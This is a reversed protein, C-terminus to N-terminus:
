NIRVTIECVAGFGRYGAQEEIGLPRWATLLADVNTLGLSRDAEIAAKVSQPGTVDQYALLAKQNRDVVSSVVVVVPFVADMGLDNLREYDIAPPEVYAAPYHPSSQIHDVARLGTGDRLRDALAEAVDELTTM